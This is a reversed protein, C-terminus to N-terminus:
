LYQITHSALLRNLLKQKCSIEVFKSLKVIQLTGVRGLVLLDLDGTILYDVQNVFGYEVLYDDKPDRSYAAVEELPPLLETMAAM